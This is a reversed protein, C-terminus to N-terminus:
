IPDPALDVGEVSTILVTAGLPSYNPIDAALAKGVESNMAEDLMVRNEFLAEFILFNPSKVSVVRGYSASKLGPLKEILPIHQTLYYDIFDDPDSPRPYMVILKYM